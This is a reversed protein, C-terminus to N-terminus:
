ELQKIPVGIHQHNCPDDTFSSSGEPVKFGSGCDTVQGYKTGKPLYKSAAKLYKLTADGGGGAVPKGDFATVDVAHGGGEKYHDSNVGAGAISGTCKRNLSSINVRHNDQVVVGYLMELITPNVNCSNKGDAVAKIQDMYQAPGTLRGSDVLEKALKQPSGSVATTDSTTAAEASPGIEGLDDQTLLSKDDKGGLVGTAYKIILCPEVEKHTPMGTEKDIASKQAAAEQWKAIPGNESEDDCHHDIWYQDPDKPIKNIPFVKAGAGFPNATQPSAAYAKGSSFVSGFGGSLAGFPDSLLSAFGTQLSAHMDFPTAMAVQNVLSHGSDTDFLREKLPQQAFMDREKNMADQVVQAVAADSTSMCGIQDCADLGQVNAGAAIMDFNRGGGMNTGFPNPILYNTAAELVKPLNEEALDKVGCVASGPVGVPTFTIAYVTFPDFGPPDITTKHCATELATEFVSGAADTISGTAKEFLTVVQGATSKWVQAITLFVNPGSSELFDHAANAVGNGQGIMEESCVLQGSPVPKKNNCIYDPSGSSGTSDATAAYAKGPLFASFLSAVSSPAPTESNNMLAGYLPSEEAAATGGILPDNPDIKGRGLSSNWSGVEIPDVNGTHVEDAYSRYNSFHQVAATASVVYGLKKIKPGAEYAGNVVQAYLQMWGVIPIAKTAAKGAAENFVKTVITKVMYKQLGDEHMENYIRFIEDQQHRGFNASLRQLETRRERDTDSEFRNDLECDVGVTCETRDVQHPDCLTSMICRLAIATNESRTALVRESLYMRASNELYKKPTRLTVADRINCFHVCRRTGHLQTMLRGVKYRISTHKWLSERALIRDMEDTLESRSGTLITSLEKGDPGIDFNKNKGEVRLIFTGVGGNKRVAHQDYSICVKYEKCLTRDLRKKAMSKYLNKVPSGPGSVTIVCDKDIVTGCNKYAPVVYKELWNSLLIRNTTEVASHVPHMFRQELNNVMNEIKLPVLSILAAIGLGFIGGAAAGGWILKNKNRKAFAGARARRTPRDNDFGSAYGSDGSAEENQLDDPAVAGNSPSSGDASASDGNSPDSETSKGEDGGANYLGGPEAASLNGQPVGDGQGGGEMVRLDPRTIPRDSDPDYVPDKKRAARAM